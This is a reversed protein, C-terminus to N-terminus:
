YLGRSLDLLPVNREQAVVPVLAVNLRTDGELSVTVRHTQSLYGPSGFTVDYSGPSLYRYYDGLPLEAHVHSNTHDHGAIEIRAPLPEGSGEALVTGSVGTLAAGIFQLLANKSYTWFSTLQGAPLLKTDSIEVTMERSHNYYTMFDQHGGHIVYWDGGHTIGDDFGTMHAGASDRQVADAFRHAIAQWWSHDAHQIKDSTWSDWPYNIVEAGGHFTAGLTFHFQSALRMLAYTEPAFRSSDLSTLDLETDGQNIEPYDRNLDVWGANYRTAGKVSGNGGYFTGDPNSLPLIWIETRDVLARIGPEAGYSSLLHDILRLLIVYGTTEDGHMSALLMVRPEAERDKIRDSIRAFLLRRGQVTAGVDVIECLDPYDAQFRAMMKVYEDYTPYTDFNWVGKEHMGVPAPGESAPALVQYALGHALFTEFEMQNAYAVVHLGSVQDISVERSLQSLAGGDPIEFTFVVEGRRQLQDQAQLLSDQGRATSVLLLLLFGSLSLVKM